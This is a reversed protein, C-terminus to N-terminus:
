KIFMQVWYTNGKSDTTYGVGIEDFNSSLINARHGSSNMWASMVSEPTRQGKAINEGASSYTIGFKKMMDFPSGYNPSTHSFYNSDRMDEAKVGAVGALKTNLKLPALGAKAREENVLNVVQKEYNGVNNDISPKENGSNNNGNNTNGNNNGNNGNDVNGNNNGNNGNNVNGNNNGNNGNNVNGNNNGSGNNSGCNNNKDCSSNTGCNNDFGCDNGTGCNSNLNCNNNIGCNNSKNCNLNNNCSTNYNKNTKQVGAVNQNINNKVKKPVFGFDEGDLKCNAQGNICSQKGLYNGLQSLSCNKNFTKIVSQNSPVSAKASCNTGAFAATPAAAVMLLTLTLTLKVFKRKM